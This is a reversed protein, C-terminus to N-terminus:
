VLSQRSPDSHVILMSLDRQLSLPPSHTMLPWSHTWLSIFNLSNYCCISQVCGEWRGRMPGQPGGPAATPARCVSFLSWSLVYRFAWCCWVRAKNVKILARWQVELVFSISNKSATPYFHMLVWNKPPKEYRLATSAFIQLWTVYYVLWSILYKRLMTTLLNM